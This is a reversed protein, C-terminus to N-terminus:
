QDSHTYEETWDRLALNGKLFAEGEIARLVPDDKLASSGDFGGLRGEHYQQVHILEHALTRLIDKPHRDAIYLVVEDEDPSFHGTMVELPNDSQHQKVLRVKPIPGGVYGHTQMFKCLSLIYPKLTETTAQTM